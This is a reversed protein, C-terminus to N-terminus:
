SIGLGNEDELELIPKLPADNMKETIDFVKKIHIPSVNSGGLGMVFGFVPTGNVRSYLASKL